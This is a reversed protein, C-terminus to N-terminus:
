IENQKKIQKPNIRIHDPHFDKIKYNIKIQTIVFGDYINDDEDYWISLAFKATEASDYLGLVTDGKHSTFGELVYYTQKIAELENIIKLTEMLQRMENM